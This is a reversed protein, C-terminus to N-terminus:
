AALCKLARLQKMIKPQWSVGARHFSAKPSIRVHKCYYKNILVKLCLSIVVPDVAAFIDENLKVLKKLFKGFAWQTSSRIIALANSLIKTNQM